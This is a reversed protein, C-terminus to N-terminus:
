LNHPRREEDTPSVEQPLGDDALGESKDPWNRKDNLEKEALYEERNRVIEQLEFVNCFRIPNVLAPKNTQLDMLGYIQKEETISAVAFAGVNFDAGANKRQCLFITGVGLRKLWNLDDPTGEDTDPRAFALVKATEPENARKM